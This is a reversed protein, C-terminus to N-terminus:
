PTVKAYELQSVTQM